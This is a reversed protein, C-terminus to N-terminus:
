VHLYSSNEKIASQFYPCFFYTLIKGISISKGNGLFNTPSSFLSLEGYLKSIGCTNDWLFLDSVKTPDM